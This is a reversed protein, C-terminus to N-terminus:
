SITDCQSEGEKVFIDTPIEVFFTTRIEPQSDVHITGHFKDHLLDKVLTLGVGRYISGDDDFKTSFGPTFILELDEKHIGQGNDVLEFLYVSREADQRIALEITGNKKNGIADISNLILNRLISMLSFHHEVYFDVKVKLKFIIDLKRQRLQEHIDLDLIRLIDKIEMGTITIDAFFGIQIGQIVRLYDKKIEHVDKAIDLSLCQMEQPFGEREITRYLTFAKKMVEEIEIINKQMFYMEGNLASAMLVLKQYREEHDQKVLFSQYANISFIVILSAATRLGAILILTQFSDKDTPLTSMRVTLEIINSLFDCFFVSIFFRTYGSSSASRKFYLLYYISGFCLYFFTDPWSLAYAYAFDGIQLSLIVARFVTALLGVMLGTKIPNLEPFLFLFIVFFIPSMAIIFGDVFLNIYIQSTLSVGIVAIATQKWKEM